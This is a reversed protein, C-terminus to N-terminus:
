LCIIIIVILAIILLWLSWKFKKDSKILQKKLNRIQSDKSILQTQSNVYITKFLHTFLLKNNNIKSNQRDFVDLEMEKAFKNLAELPKDHITLVFDDNVIFIMKSDENKNLPVQPNNIVIFIYGYDLSIKDELPKSVIEQTIFDPIPYQETILSVEEKSPSELDIWVLEKHSYKSIM